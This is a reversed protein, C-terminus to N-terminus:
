KKDGEISDYVNKCNCEEDHDDELVPIGDEDFHTANLKAWGRINGYKKFNRRARANAWLQLFILGPIAVMVAVAVLASWVAGILYVIAILLFLGPIM